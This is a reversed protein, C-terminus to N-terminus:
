EYSEELQAYDRRPDWVLREDHENMGQNRNFNHGVRYTYRQDTYNVEWHHYPRPDLPIGVENDYKARLEELRSPM